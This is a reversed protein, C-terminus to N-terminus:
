EAITMRLAISLVTCSDIGGSLFFGIPRESQIIRKHVARCLALYIEYNNTKEPLYTLSLYQQSSLSLHKTGNQTTIKAYGAGGIRKTVWGGQGTINSNETYSEFDDFFAFTNSGSSRWHHERSERRRHCLRRSDREPPARSNGPCRM